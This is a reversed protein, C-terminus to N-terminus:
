MISEMLEIDIMGESDTYCDLCIDQLEIDNLKRLEEEKIELRREFLETIYKENWEAVDMKDIDELCQKSLM